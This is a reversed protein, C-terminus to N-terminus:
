KHVVSTHSKSGEPSKLTESNQCNQGTILHENFDLQKTKIHKQKKCEVLVILIYETM